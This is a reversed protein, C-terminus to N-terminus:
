DARTADDETIFHIRIKTGGSSTMSITAGLYHIINRIISFGMSEATQIDVSEPFPKGNNEVSLITGEQEKKLSILISGKPEIGYKCANTVLENIILGIRVATDSHFVIQDVEYLIEPSLAAFTEELHSVLDEIYSEMDVESANGGLYLMRNTIGVSAIKENLSRLVEEKSEDSEQYLHILASIMSLNNSIRHNTEHILTNLNNNATHLEQKQTQTRMWTKILSDELNKRDFEYIWTLLSLIFYGTVIHFKFRLPLPIDFRVLEPFFFVTLIIGFAIVAPVIGKFKGLLLFSVPPIMFFWIFNGGQSLPGSYILKVILLMVLFIALTYWVAPKWLRHVIFPIAILFVLVSGDIVTDCVKQRLIDDIVFILMSFAGISSFFLGIRYRRMSSFDPSSIDVDKIQKVANNENETNKM